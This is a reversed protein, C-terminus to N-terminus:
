GESYCGLGAARAMDYAADIEAERAEIARATADAYTLPRDFGAHAALRGGYTTLSLTLYRGAYTPLRPSSGRAAGYHNLNSTM